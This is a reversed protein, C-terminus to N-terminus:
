LRDEAVTVKYQKRLNHLFARAEVMGRARGLQTRLSERTAAIMKGPDGDKVATVQVVM